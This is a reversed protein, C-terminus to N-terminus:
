HGQISHDEFQKLILQAHRQFAHHDESDLSSTKPINQALPDIHQGKIRMEYHLHPGTAVGTKGVYGIIQGPTVKEGKKLKPHFSSLHAYLTSYQHPHKIEITNGYGNRRGKFSVTGAATSMVPTGIPAAYDVGTHARITGYVPHRRKEAYRSSIWARTVPSKLFPRSLCYGQPSYYGSRGNRDTYSIATYTRNKLLLQVALIRNQDLPSQNAWLDEYLVIFRDGPQIQKAFNIQWSFLRVIDHLSKESLGAELGSQLFSNEIVNSTIRQHSQVQLALKQATYGTPQLAVYLVNTGDLPYFLATLNNSDDAKLFLKAKPKINQLPEVVEGLALIEYLTHFPYGQAKFIHSLTQNKEITLTHWQGQTQPLQPGAQNAAETFSSLLPDQFDAESLTAESLADPSPANESLQTLFHQWYLLLSACFCLSWIGFIFWRRNPTKFDQPNQPTQFM